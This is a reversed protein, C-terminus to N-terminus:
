HESANTNDIVDMMERYNKLLDDAIADIISNHYATCSFQENCEVYKEGTAPQLNNNM